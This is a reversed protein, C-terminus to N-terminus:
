CSECNSIRTKKDIAGLEINVIAAAKKVIVYAYFLEPRERRGSVPFNEIARLTKIGYYAKDSILREGLSDKEKCMAMM